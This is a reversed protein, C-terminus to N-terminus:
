LSYFMPQDIERVEPYWPMLISLCLFVETGRKLKWDSEQLRYEPNEEELASEVCYGCHGKYFVFQNMGDRSLMKLPKGHHKFDLIM